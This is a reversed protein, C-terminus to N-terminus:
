AVYSKVATGTITFTPTNTIDEEYKIFFANNSIITSAGSVGPGGITLEVPVPLAVLIYFSSTTSQVPDASDSVQAVFNFVTDFTVDPTTGSIVGTSSNLSLGSPLAGSLITITYPATGGTISLTKSVSLNRSYAALQGPPDIFRPAGPALYQIGPSLVATTADPNVLTIIYTGATQATTIFQVSTSNVFPTSVAPANNILVNCARQFGTGTLIVTENGETSVSSGNNPYTVGTIAVPTLRNNLDGLQDIDDVPIPAGPIDSYVLYNNIIENYINQITTKLPEEGGITTGFPLDISTPTVTISRTEDGVYISGPGVYLHRWRKSLSGLDYTNDISPLISEAVNSLDAGGGGGSITVAGEADTTVTIGSAGAFKITEGNSILRQTSDDGAIKFSFASPIAPTNTLDNYSRFLV